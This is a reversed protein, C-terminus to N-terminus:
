LGCAKLFKARREVEELAQEFPKCYGTDIRGTVDDFVVICEGPPCIYHDCKKCKRAQVIHGPKMLNLRQCHWCTFTDVEEIVKGDLYTRGYGQAGRM